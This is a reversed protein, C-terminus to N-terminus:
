IQEIRGLRNISINLSIDHMGDVSLSVTPLVAMNLPIEDHKVRISCITGQRLM